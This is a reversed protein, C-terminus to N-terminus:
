GVLTLPKLWCDSNLYFAAIPVDHEQEALVFVGDVSFSELDDSFIFRTFSGKENMAFQIHQVVWSVVYVGTGTSMRLGALGPLVNAKDLLVQPLIIGGPTRLPEGYAGVMQAVLQLLAAGDKPESMGEPLMALCVSRSGSGEITVRETFPGASVRERSCTGSPVRFARYLVEGGDETRFISDPRCALKWEIPENFISVAGIRGSLEGFQGILGNVTMFDALMEADDSAFSNMNSAQLTERRYTSLWKIVEVQEAMTPSHPTFRFDPGHGRAFDYLARALPGVLFGFSGVPAQVTSAHANAM